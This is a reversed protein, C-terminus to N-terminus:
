HKQSISEMDVLMRNYVELLFLENSLALVFLRGKQRAHYLEVAWNDVYKGTGKLTEPYRITYGNTRWYEIIRANQPNKHDDKIMNVLIILGATLSLHERVTKRLAPNKDLSGTNLGRLIAIMLAAACKHRDLLGKEDIMFTEKAEQRVTEYEAKISAKSAEIVNCIDAAFLANGQAALKLIDFLSEFTTNNAM